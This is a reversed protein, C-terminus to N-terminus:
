HRVVTCAVKMACPEGPRLRLRGQGSIGKHNAADVARDRVNEAGQPGEGQGPCQGLCEIVRAARGGHADGRTPPGRTERERQDTQLSAGNARTGRDTRTTPTHYSSGAPLLQVYVVGYAGYSWANGQCRVLVLGCLQPEPLAARVM